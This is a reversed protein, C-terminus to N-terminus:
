RTNPNQDNSVKQPTRAQPDSIRLVKEIITESYDGPIRLQEDDDYASVAPITKVKLPGSILHKPMKPIVVYNGELYCEYAGDLNQGAELQDFVPVAASQTIYYQIDTESKMPAVSQLGKDGRISMITGPLKFFAVNRKDNWYVPVDEYTKLWAGDIYKEVKLIANLIEAMAMELYGYFDRPDFKQHSVPSGGSRNLICLEAFELKTM